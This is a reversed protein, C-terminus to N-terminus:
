TNQWWADLQVLREFNEAQELQTLWGVRAMGTAADARAKLEAIRGLRRQRDVWPGAPTPMPIAAILSEREARTLYWDLEVGEALDSDVEEDGPWSEPRPSRYTVEASNEFVVTTFFAKNNSTAAVFRESLAAIDEDNRFSASATRASEAAEPASTFFRFGRLLRDLLRTPAEVVARRADSSISDRIQVLVVGSTNALLWDFNKHIWASAVQIGYNDYVGADFVRRPPDTPLSVSPSVYPFSANMRVGTNLRFGVAEPFLRYFEVASLSYLRESANPGAASTEIGRSGTISQLDLNSILLRRGDEIIMPSLIMSPIRGAEEDPRLSRFPIAIEKWDNELRIGRDDDIVRPLFALFPDRLALFRAVPDLSDRPISLVWESPRYAGVPAVPESNNFVKQRHLLYYAAGLMGGSAGTIVRVQRGFDPIQKELRDLVIAVWLGSRLAGGSVAVVALKPKASNGPLKLWNNLADEDRVAQSDGANDPHEVAHAIGVVRQRLPVLGSAGGPYYNAMEPFRLKYPSNNALGFWFAGGLFVLTAAGSFSWPLLYTILAYVTAALGLMSCIAFAPSVVREYIPKASLIAYFVGFVVTFLLLSRNRSTLRDEGAWLWTWGGLVRALSLLVFVLLIGLAIGALWTVLGLGYAVPNSAVSLTKGTAPGPKDRSIMVEPAWRPVRPFAAPFIAPAILLLVFPPSAAVLFRTLREVSDQAPATTWGVGVRAILADVAAPDPGAEDQGVPTCTYFSLIGTLAILLTAATAAGLRTRLRDHWFLGPLGYDAGIMGFVIGYVLLLVVPFLLHSLAFLGAEPLYPRFPVAVAALFVVALIIQFVRVMVDGECDVIDIL